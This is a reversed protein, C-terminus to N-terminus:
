AAAEISFGKAVTPPGKPPRLNAPAWDHAQKVWRPWEDAVRPQALYAEANARLQDPDIQEAVRELALRLRYTNLKEDPWLDDFVQIALDIKSPEDVSNPSALPTPSPTPSPPITSEHMTQAHTMCPEHMSDPKPIRSQAEKHHPSQYQDWSNLAILPSGDVKYRIIKGVRELGALMQEVTATTVNDHFPFLQAKIRAPRDELRGERDAMMPLTVFLRWTLDGMEHLEEDFCAGPWISRKRM